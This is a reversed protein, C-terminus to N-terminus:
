RMSRIQALHPIAVAIDRRHESGVIGTGAAIVIMARRAARQGGLGAGIDSREQRQDAPGRGGILRLFAGLRRGIPALSRQEDTARDLM